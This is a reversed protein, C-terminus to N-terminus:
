QEPTIEEPPPEIADVPPKPQVDALWVVAYREGDDGEVAFVAGSNSGFDVELVETQFVLEEADPESAGLDIADDERGPQEGQAIPRGDTGPPPEGPRLVLLLVAAALALGAIVVGAIRRQRAPDHAKPTRAREESRGGEVARLAPQPAAAPKEAIRSEIRAWLDDSPVDDLEDAVSARVVARVERLGDLKARLAPETEVLRRVESAEEPSLEGDFYRHLRDDAFRQDGM